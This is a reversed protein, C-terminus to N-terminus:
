KVQYSFEIQGLKGPHRYQRAYVSYLMPEEPVDPGGGKTSAPDLVLVHEKGNPAIFWGSVLIVHGEGTIWKIKSPVPFGANIEQQITAFSPADLTSLQKIFLGKEKLVRKLSHMDNCDATCALDTCTGGDEQTRNPPACSHTRGANKLHETM